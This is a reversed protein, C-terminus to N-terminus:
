CRTLRDRFASLIAHCGVHPFIHNGARDQISCAGSLVHHSNSLTVTCHKIDVSGVPLGHLALQHRLSYLDGSFLYSDSRPDLLACSVMDWGFPLEITTASPLLTETPNVPFIPLTSSSGQMCMDADNLSNIPFSPLMSIQHAYRLAQLSSSASAINYSESPDNYM